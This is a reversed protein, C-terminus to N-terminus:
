CVRFTIGCQQIAELLKDIHETSKITIDKEDEQIAGYILNRLLVDTIRLMLHLEDLVVQMSTCLVHIHM